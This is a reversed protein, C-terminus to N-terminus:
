GKSHEILKLAVDKLDLDSEEEVQRVTEPPFADIGKLAGAIGGVM